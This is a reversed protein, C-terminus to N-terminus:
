HISWDKSWSVMDFYELCLILGGLKLASGVVNLYIIVLKLWISEFGDFIFLIAEWKEESRETMKYTNQGRVREGFSAWGRHFLLSFNERGKWETFFIDAISKLMLYVICQKVTCHHAEFWGVHTSLYNLQWLTGSDRGLALLYLEWSYHKNEACRREYGRRYPPMSGPLVVARPKADM